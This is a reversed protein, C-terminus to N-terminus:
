PPCTVWVTLWLSPRCPSPEGRRGSEGIWMCETCPAAGAKGKGERNEKSRVSAHGGTVLQTLSAGPPDALYSSDQSDGNAGGQSAPHSVVTAPGEGHHHGVVTVGPLLHTHWARELEGRQEGLM